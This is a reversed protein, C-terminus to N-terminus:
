KPLKWGNRQGSIIELSDAIRKLQKNMEDVQQRSAAENAGTAQMAACTALLACLLALIWFKAKM